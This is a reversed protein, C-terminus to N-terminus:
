HKNSRFLIVLMDIPRSGKDFPTVSPYKQPYKLINPLLKRLKWQFDLFMGMNLLKPLNVAFYCCGLVEPTLHLIAWWVTAWHLYNFDFSLPCYQFKWLILIHDTHFM